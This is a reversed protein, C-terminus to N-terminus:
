LYNALMETTAFVLAPPLLASDTHLDGALEVTVSMVWVMTGLQESGLDECRALSSM